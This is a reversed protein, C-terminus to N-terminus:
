DHDPKHTLRQNKRRECEKAGQHPKYKSRDEDYVARLLQVRKVVGIRPFYHKVELGKIRTKGPSLKRSTGRQKYFRTAKSGRRGIRVM